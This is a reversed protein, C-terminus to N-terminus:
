VLLAYLGEPVPSYPAMKEGTTHWGEQPHFRYIMAKQAQRIAVSDTGLQIVSLSHCHYEVSGARLRCLVFGTVQQRELTPYVLKGLIDGGCLCRLDDWRHEHKTHLCPFPEKRLARTFQESEMPTLCHQQPCAVKDASVPLLPGSSRRGSAHTLRAMVGPPRGWLCQFRVSYHNLQNTVLQASGANMQLEYGANDWFVPMFDGGSIEVMTVPDHLRETLATATAPQHEVPQGELSLLPEGLTVLTLCRGLPYYDPLDYVRGAGLVVVDTHEHSLSEAVPAILSVRRQNQDFWHNARQAFQGPPYSNANGLFFVDSTLSAPLRSLLEEVLGIAVRRDEGRLRAADLVLAVKGGQSLELEFWGSRLTM